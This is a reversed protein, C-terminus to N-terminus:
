GDGDLIIPGPLKDRYVMKKLIRKGNADVGWLHFVSTALDIGLSTIKM